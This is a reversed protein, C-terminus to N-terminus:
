LQLRNSDRSSHHVRIIQLTDNVSRYIINIREVPFLRIGEGIEERSAGLDPTLALLEFQAYLRELLDDAYELYGETAVYFWLEALDNSASNTIILQTM